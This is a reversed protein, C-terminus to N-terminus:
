PAGGLRWRNNFYGAALYRRGSGLVRFGRKNEIRQDYVVYDPLYWPLLHQRLVGRATTGAVVLLYRDPHQPNPLIFRVGVEPGRFRRRGVRVERASVRIPLKKAYRATEHNAQPGGVLLLSHQRRDQPTVATDAKIPYRVTGWRFHRLRRAVRELAARQAPDKTGFVVLVSGYHFDEM